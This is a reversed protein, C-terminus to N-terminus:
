LRVLQETMSFAYIGLRHHIM